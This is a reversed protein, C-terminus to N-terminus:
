YTMLKDPSHICGWQMHGDFRLGVAVRTTRVHSAASVETKSGLAKYLEVTTAGVLKSKLLETHCGQRDSPSLGPGEQPM